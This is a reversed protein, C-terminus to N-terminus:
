NKGYRNHYFTGNNLEETLVDNGDTWFFRSNLHLASRLQKFFAQQTNARLNTVSTRFIGLIM